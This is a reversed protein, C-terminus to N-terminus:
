NLRSLRADDFFNFWLLCARENGDDNRGPLYYRSMCPKEKHLQQGEKKKVRM